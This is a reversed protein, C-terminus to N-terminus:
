GGFNRLSKELDRMARDVERFGTETSAREDRLLVTAKCNPCFVRSELRVDILHVEMEYGCQPCPVDIPHNDLDLM